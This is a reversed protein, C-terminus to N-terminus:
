DWAEGCDPCGIVVALIGRQPKWEGCSACYRESVPTSHVSSPLTVKGVNAGVYEVPKGYTVEQRSNRKQGHTPGADNDGMLTM